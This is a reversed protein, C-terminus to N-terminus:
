EREGGSARTASAGPHRMQHLSESKDSEEHERHLHAGTGLLGVGVRQKMQEEIGAVTRNVVVRLMAFGSVGWCMLHRM